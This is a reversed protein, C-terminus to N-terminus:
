AGFGGTGADFPKGAKQSLEEAQRIQHLKTGAPRIGQRHANKYAEIEGDWARRGDVGMDISLNKARMCAGFTEHGAGCTCRTGAM